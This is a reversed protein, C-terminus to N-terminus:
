NCRTSRPSCNTCTYQLHYAIDWPFTDAHSPRSKNLANILHGMQLLLTKSWRHNGCLTVTFVRQQQHQQHQHSLLVSESSVCSWRTIPSCTAHAQEGNVVPGAARQYQGFAVCPDNQLILQSIPRPLHLLDVQQVERWLLYCQLTCYCYCCYTCVLYWPVHLSCGQRSVSCCYSERVTRRWWTYEPPLLACSSTSVISRATTQSTLQAFHVGCALCSSPLSYRWARTPESKRAVITHNRRDLRTNRSGSPPSPFHADWAFCVHHYISHKSTHVVGSTGVVGDKLVVLQARDYM